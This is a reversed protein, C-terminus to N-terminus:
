WAAGTIWAIAGPHVAWACWGRVKVALSDTQWISRTPAAVVAPSGPIGIDSPAADEFHLTPEESVEISVGGDYGTVLGGAAIAIVEGAPISASSLVENSFKPSVLCRLKTALGSTTIIIMDDASIGHSAIAGALLALDDAIGAAGGTGASPSAAIGNLLGAPAAATAAANSFLLADMSQEASTALAGGIITSATDGSAAQLENTLASGILLKKVPGVRLVSTIMDVVPMPKGEEVFPVVPRGSAGIYPVAVSSVGALNVSSAAGLLRASASSPALMPLVTIAEVQPYGGSTTPSTAGKLIRSASADDPWAKALIADPRQRDRSALAMATAARIFSRSQSSFMAGPDPRLPIPSHLNM